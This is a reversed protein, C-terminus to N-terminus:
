VWKRGYPVTPTILGMKFLYEASRVVEIVQPSSLAYFVEQAQRRPLVLGAVRLKSLHQSTASQSLAVSESIESVRLEGHKLAELIQLRRPNGMASFTLAVHDHLPLKMMYDGTTNRWGASVYTGQM